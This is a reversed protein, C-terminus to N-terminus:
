GNLSKLHDSLKLALAVITMTPNDFSYTPFVSSGGIFLNAIGHVRCHEDVAGQHPDGHMRTTGMHHHGHSFDAMPDYGTEKSNMRLRGLGNRGLEEALIEHARLMTREFDGPLRWDLKVRRLGLEDVAGTLTVRSEPDPPCGVSYTTLVDVPKNHMFKQYGQIARSEVGALILRVHFLLHDPVHGSKFTRYISRLSEKAKIIDYPDGPAFTICFAPLGEQRRLEATPAIYGAVGHGRVTRLWYYFEMNARPDTLLISAVKAPQPHDMFYRGVLDFGNGLGGKQVQDANLLLRPNEIGGAALVYYRGHASFRRGNLCALELGSVESATDNTDIKVLNAHLYVSVGNAAELDQRYVTGFRTPPSAQFIGTKLRAAPGFDLPRADQTTWDDPEYTFPGLQCIEQARRYYPDMVDRGFPWGEFDIPHFPHCSGSWHNTTGGFFRLREIDLPDYPRGIIEGQYLQQTEQEFDLGGGEFVAIRRNSGALDRALTIGAAGAGIICVDAEITTNEPLTKSDIFM